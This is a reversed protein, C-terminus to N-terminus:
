FKMTGHKETIFVNGTGPELALAWPEDFAGLSTTKFPTPAPAPVAKRPPVAASDGSQALGCSASLLLGLSLAFTALRMAMSEPDGDGSKQAPQAGSSSTAPTSSAPRPGSAPGTTAAATTSHLGRGAPMSSELFSVASRRATASSRM